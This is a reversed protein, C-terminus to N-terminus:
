NIQWSLSFVDDVASGEVTFDYSGDSPATFESSGSIDFLEVGDKRVVASLGDGGDYSFLVEDDAKLSVRRTISGDFSIFSAQLSTESSHYSFGTFVGNTITCGCILVCLLMALTLIFIKKTRMKM